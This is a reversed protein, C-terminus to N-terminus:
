ILYVNEALHKHLHAMQYFTWIYFLGCFVFCIITFRKLLRFLLGSFITHLLCASACSLLRTNTVWKNAWQFLKCTIVISHSQLLLGRIWVTIWSSGNKIAENKAAEGNREQAVYDEGAKNRIPTFRSFKYNFLLIGYIIWNHSLKSSKWFTLYPVEIWTM